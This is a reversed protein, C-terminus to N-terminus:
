SRRTNEETDMLCRFYDTVAMTFIYFLHMLAFYFLTVISTLAFIGIAPVIKNTYPVDPMIAGWIMLAPFVIGYFLAGLIVFVSMIIFGIRAVSAYILNFRYLNGYKHSTNETTWPALVWLFGTSSRSEEDSRAQALQKQAATPRPASQPTSAAAAPPTFDFAPVGLQSLDLNALDGGTNSPSSPMVKTATVKAPQASWGCKPCAPAKKSM